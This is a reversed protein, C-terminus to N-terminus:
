NTKALWDEEYVIEDEEILFTRYVYERQKPRNNQFDYNARNYTDRLIDRTEELYSENLVISNTSFCELQHEECIDILMLIFDLGNIERMMDFRAIHSLLQRKNKEVEWTTFEYKLKRCFHNYLGDISFKIVPEFSVPCLISKGKYLVREPSSMNLGSYLYHKGKELLQGKWLSEPFDNWTAGEKMKKLTAQIEKDDCGADRLYSSILTANWTDQKM